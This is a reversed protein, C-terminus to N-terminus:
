GALDFLQAAGDRAIARLAEDRDVAFEGARDDDGAAQARTAAARLGPGWDRVAVRVGNAGDAETCILM